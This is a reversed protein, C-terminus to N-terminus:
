NKTRFSHTVVGIPVILEWDKKASSDHGIEIM